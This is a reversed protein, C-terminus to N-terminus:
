GRLGMDVVEEAGGQQIDLDWEGNANKDVWEFSNNVSFSLTLTIDKFNFSFFPPNTKHFSFLFHKPRLLPYISSLFFVTFTYFFSKPNYM